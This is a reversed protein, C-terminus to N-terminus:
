KNGFQTTFIQSSSYEKVPAEHKICPIPTGIKLVQKCKGGIPVMWSCHRNMKEIKKMNEANIKSM